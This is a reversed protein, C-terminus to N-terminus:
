LPNFFHLDALEYERQPLLRLAPLDIELYNSYRSGEMKQFPKHNFEQLKQQIAENLESLSFFKQNRLAALIFRELNLM